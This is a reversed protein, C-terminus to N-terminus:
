GGTELGEAFQEAFLVYIVLTPLAAIFAGAMRMGFDVGSLSSGLGSLILTVPAAPSDASGVITLTFLFENWIQTFQYIFVVGIMPTSLPLVIRRYISTVSAGDLKAAEILDGPLSLYYGRFLLTCIPIGYAADTIILEVLQAHEPQVFSLVYLPSLWEELPVMSWFRSLPVLVAQYPIFIGILFLVLVFIQGRWNILTLGYAATSGFLLCLLTAPVTLVMSNVLGRGLMDFADVWKQFTFAEGLPPFFPLTNTVGQTTKFATMLGTELPVLFFAVFFLILLYLLARSLDFGPLRDFLTRDTTGRSM